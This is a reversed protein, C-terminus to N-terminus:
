RLRFEGCGKGSQKWHRGCRAAGVRDPPVIQHVRQNITQRRDAPDTLRDIM